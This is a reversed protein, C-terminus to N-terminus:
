VSQTGTYWFIDFSVLCYKQLGTVLLLCNSVIGGLIQCFWRCMFRTLCSEPLVASSMQKAAPIQEPGVM